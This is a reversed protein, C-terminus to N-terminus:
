ELGVHYLYYFYERSQNRLDFDVHRESLYDLIENLKEEYDYNKKKRDKIFEHVSGMIYAFM